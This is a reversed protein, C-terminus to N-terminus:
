SNNNSNRNEDQMGREIQKKISNISTRELNQKFENQINKIEKCLIENINLGLPCNPSPSHKPNLLNNKYFIKFVQYFNIDKKNPNIKSGFRGQKTIILNNNSLEKLIRRIVVPNTNISESLRKSSIYETEHFKLYLLIHIAIGFNQNTNM